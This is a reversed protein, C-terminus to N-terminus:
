GLRKLGLAVDQFNSGMTEYALVRKLPRESTAIGMLIPGPMSPMPSMNSRGALISLRHRKLLMLHQQDAGHHSTLEPRLGGPTCSVMGLRAYDLSFLLPQTM